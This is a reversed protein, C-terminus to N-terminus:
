PVDACIVSKQLAHSCRWGQLRFATPQPRVPPEPQADTCGLQQALKPPESALQQTHESGGSM